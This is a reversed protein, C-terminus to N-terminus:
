WFFFMLTQLFVNPLTTTFYTNLNTNINNYFYTTSFVSTIILLLILTSLLEIFFIITFLTNAFFLFVTWIYFNLCTLWYDYFEKSTVYLSSTYVLLVFYFVISILILMKKQLSTFILHGFWVILSPSTWLFNVLLVLTIFTLLIWHLDFGTLYETNKNNKFYKFNLLDKFVPLIYLLISFIFLIYFIAYFYTLSWIISFTLFFM